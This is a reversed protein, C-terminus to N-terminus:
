LLALLGEATARSTKRPTPVRRGRHPQVDEVIHNCTGCRNIHREPAILRKRQLKCRTALETVVAKATNPERPPM